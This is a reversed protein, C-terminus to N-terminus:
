LIQVLVVHVQKYVLAVVGVSHALAKEILNTCRMRPQTECVLESISCTPVNVGPLSDIYESACEYDVYFYQLM